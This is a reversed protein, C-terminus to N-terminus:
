VCGHSHHVAMGTYANNNMCDHKGSGIGVFMDM